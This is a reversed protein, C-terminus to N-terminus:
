RQQPALRFAEPRYVCFNGTSVTIALYRGLNQDHTRIRRMAAAIARTVNIRAREAESGIKKQRAGIGAAEAVERALADIESQARAARGPDNLRQAEDVDAHLERLREQYVNKATPDFISGPNRRSRGTGQLHAAYFSTGPQQLLRALYRLGKSDKLRLATEGARLTWYDGEAEIVVLPQPAAPRTEASRDNPLASARQSLEAQLDRALRELRQMGLTSASSRAEDVLTLALTMTAMDSSGSRLVMEAWAYKTQAVWPSAGMSTNAALAQSFLETAQEWLGRTAALRAVFYAVSGCLGAGTAVVVNNSVFPMLLEQLEAARDRDALTACVESLFCLSPLWNLDRPLDRFAQRALRELEAAAASHRGSECWLFALGCRWIPLTPYREAFDEVVSELQELNGRAHHQLFSQVGFFPAANEAEGHQGLALAQRSLEEAKDIHGHFLALAAHLLAGHWRDRIRRHETALRVFAEVDSTASVLDGIELNDAIRWSLGDMVVDHDHIREGLHLLDNALVLRESTHRPEWLSFHRTALAQALATTDGLRRAIELAELSVQIRRERSPSFYLAVALRALVAVRLPSDGPPLTALAEELLAVLTANVVGTEAMAHGLAVAARSLLQADGLERAWAAARKCGAIAPTHSGAYRHAEAARIQLDCRQRSSGGADDVTELAQEYWRAAEEFALMKAAREAARAAYDFAKGIESREARCFHHALEALHPEPNAAYLQELATGIASHLHRRAEPALDHSLTDTILMHAFRYRGPTGAVENIIESVTAHRLVRFVLSGEGVVQELVREDFDRGAVAAVSLIRQAEADLTGLRQRIVDRVQAPVRLAPRQILSPRAITGDAVLLRMIEDVFFPNGETVEHVAAVVSSPVNREAITACRAAVADRELGRLAIRRGDRLLGQLIAARDTHRQMEADRCTVLALIAASGLNRALFRLLQLSPADASHVDDFLLVLPQTQAVLQLFRSCADFLAFRSQESEVPQSTEDAREALLVDLKEQLRSQAAIEPALRCCARVIQTWPWFAPAGGAEWCRGWVAFAGSEVAREELETALRTKGIGPEGTVVILGGRGACAASLGRELLDIERARGM